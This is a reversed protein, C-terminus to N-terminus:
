ARERDLDKYSAELAKKPAGPTHGNDQVYFPEKAKNWVEKKGFGCRRYSPLRPYPEYAAFCLNTISLALGPSVEGRPEQARLHGSKLPLASLRQGGGRIPNTKGNLVKDM